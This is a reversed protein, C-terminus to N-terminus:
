RQKEAGARAYKAILCLATTYVTSGAIGQILRLACAVTLIAAKNWLHAIFGMCVFSLGMICLSLGLLNHPSVIQFLYKGVVPSWFIQGVSYMAFSLGVFAGSIGKEDLLIPLIPACVSYAGNSIFTSFLVWIFMAAAPLSM